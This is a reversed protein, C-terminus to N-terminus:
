PTQLTGTSGWRKFFVLWVLFAVVMAIVLWRILLGSGQRPAAPTVPPPAEVPAPEPNYVADVYEDSYMLDSSPLDPPRYTPDPTVKQNELQQVRQELQADRAVLDRYRAPDMSPRHHYAWHSRTELNQLLLWTWFLDSYSDRYMIVPPPAIPPTTPPPTPLAKPKYFDRQRQQRNVWREHDLERRLQETTRANPDVPRQNGQADRYSPRPQQGRLFTERSEAKKQEQAALSDFSPGASQPPQQPSPTAFTHRRGSPTGSVPAPGPATPASTPGRTFVKGRPLSSDTPVTPGTSPSSKPATYTKAPKASAGSGSPSKAPPSTYTKRGGPPSATPKAPSGATYSKGGSPAGPSPTRAAPPPSPSSTRSGSGSTYSRGASSGSGTSPKGGPSSSRSGSSVGRSGSSIGRSGSSSVKGKGAQAEEVVALALWGACLALTLLKKM